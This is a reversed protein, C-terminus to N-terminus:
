LLMRDAISSTQQIVPSELDKVILTVQDDYRSLTLQKKGAALKRLNKELEDIHCNIVTWSDHKPTASTEMFAKEPFYQKVQEQCDRMIKLYLPGNCKCGPNQLYKAVDENLEAPLTERFKADRMAQKIDMVTIHNM